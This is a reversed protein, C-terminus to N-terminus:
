AALGKRIRQLERLRSTKVTGVPLRRARALERETWGRACCAWAAQLAAEAEIRTLADSEVDGVGGHWPELQVHRHRSEARVLDIARRAVVRSILRESELAAVGYRAMVSVVADHVVDPALESGVRSRAIRILRSYLVANM